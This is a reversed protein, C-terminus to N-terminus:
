NLKTYIDTGITMMLWHLRSAGVLGKATAKPKGGIMKFSYCKPALLIVEECIEGKFEDKICGLKSNLKNSYLDHDKPYNSTDLLGDEIMAPYLDRILDVAGKVKIFLSVTDGGIIQMKCDFQDEYKELKNYALDYM